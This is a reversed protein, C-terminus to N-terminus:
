RAEQVVILATHNTALFPDNLDVVHVLILVIITRLIQNRQARRMMLIPVRAMAM